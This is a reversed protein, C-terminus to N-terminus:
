KNIQINVDSDNVKYIENRDRESLYKMYASGIVKIMDITKDFREDERNEEHIRLALKLKRDYEKKSEIKDLIELISSECNTSPPISLICNLAQDYNEVAVYSKAKLVFDNCSEKKLENYIKNMNKIAKLYCNKNSKDISSLISLAQRRGDITYGDENVFKAANAKTLAKEVILDCNREIYNVIKIKTNYIFKQLDKNRPNFTKLANHFAQEESKGIGKLAVYYNGFVSSNDYDSVFLNLDINMSYYYPPNTTMEKDVISIIPFMIFSYNPNLSSIGDFSLSNLLKNELLKASNFDFEEPLNKIVVGITLDKVNENISNSNQGYIFFSVFNLSLFFVVYRM